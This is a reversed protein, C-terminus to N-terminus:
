ILFDMLFDMVRKKLNSWISTKEAYERHVTVADRLLKIGQSLILWEKTKNIVKFIAKFFEDYFEFNLQETMKGFNRFDCLKAFNDWHESSAWLQLVDGSYRLCLITCLVEVVPYIWNLAKELDHLSSRSIGFTKMESNGAYNKILWERAYGVGAGMVALLIFRAWSDEMIKPIGVVIELWYLILEAISIVIVIPFIFRELLIEFGFIQIDEILSEKEELKEKTKDKDVLANGCEACYSKDESYYKNCKECYKM